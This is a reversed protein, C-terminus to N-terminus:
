RRNKKKLLLKISFIELSSQIDELQTHESFFLFVVFLLPLIGLMLSYVVVRNVPITSM